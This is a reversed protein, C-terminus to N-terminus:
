SLCFKALGGVRATRLPEECQEIWRENIHRISDRRHVPSSGCVGDTRLKLFERGVIVHLQNGDDDFNPNLVAIGLNTQRASHDSRNPGPSRTPRPLQSGLGFTRSDVHGVRHQVHGDHISLLLLDFAEASSSPWRASSARLAASMVSGINTGTRRRSALSNPVMPACAVLSTRSTKSPSCSAVYARRIRRRTKPEGSVAPPRHFKMLELRGHGDPNRMM